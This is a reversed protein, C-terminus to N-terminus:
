DASGAVEVAADVPTGEHGIELEVVEVTAVPVTVSGSVVPGKVEVDPDRTGVAGQGVNLELAVDIEPVTEMGTMVVGMEAVSKVVEDPELDNVHDFKVAGLRGVPVPMPVTIVIVPLDVMVRSGDPVTVLAVHVDWCLVAAGVFPVIKCVDVALTVCVGVDGPVEAVATGGNGVPFEVNTGNGVPPFVDM